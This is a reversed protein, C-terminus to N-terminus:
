YKELHYPENDFTMEKGIIKKITGKPLEVYGYKSHYNTENKKPLESYIYESGNKDVALYAM